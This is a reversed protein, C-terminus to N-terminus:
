IREVRTKDGVGEGARYGPFSKVFETDWLVDVAFQSAAPSRKLYMEIKNTTGKNCQLTAFASPSITSLKSTRTISMSSTLVEVRIGLM